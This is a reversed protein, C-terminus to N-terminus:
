FYPQAALDWLQVMNGIRSEDKSDDKKKIEVLKADPQEDVYVDLMM